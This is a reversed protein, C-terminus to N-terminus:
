VLRSRVRACLSMYLCTAAVHVFWDSTLAPLPLIAFAIAPPDVNFVLSKSSRETIFYSAFFPLLRFFDMFPNIRYIIIKWRGVVLYLKPELLKLPTPFRIFVIWTWTPPHFIHCFTSSMIKCNTANLDTNYNMFQSNWNACNVTDDM